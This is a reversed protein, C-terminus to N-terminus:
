GRHGDQLAVLRGGSASWGPPGPLPSPPTGSGPVLLGGVWHVSSSLHRQHEELFTHVNIFTNQPSFLEKICYYFSPDCSPVNWGVDTNLIHAVPKQLTHRLVLTHTYYHHSLSFKICILQPSVSTLRLSQKLSIIFGVALEWRAESGPPM